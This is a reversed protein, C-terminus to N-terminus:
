PLDTRDLVFVFVEVNREQTGSRHGVGEGLHGVCSAVTDSSGPVANATFADM